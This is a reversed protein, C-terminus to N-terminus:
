QEDEGKDKGEPNVKALYELYHNERLWEESVYGDWFSTNIPFNSPSLHVLYLHWLVLFTIILTATASHLAQSLDFFWKPLVGFFYNHFWLVIGSLIMLVVFLFFFWYQIKEKYSYRGYMPPKENKGIDYRVSEVFDSFDKKMPLLEKFEAREERTFIIYILHYVATIFLLVASIRHLTGRAEFGGELFILFRGLWTNHYKLAFGTIILLTVSVMLLFHQIRWSLSFRQIKREATM